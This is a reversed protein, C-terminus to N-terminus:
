AVSTSLPRGAQRWEVVGDTLLIAHRGAATLLRVADHSFLCYSGRCYAVVDTDAPLEDLRTSLEELPISIAGPIHGAAYEIAPRVDLVIVEGAHARRLLEERGIQELDGPGLYRRAAAEVDALHATAVDRLQGWLAVVDDGALSYRITTGARSTSVLGARKLTQLHASATTLNLGAAEALEAVGRQGQALLEILQLRTGNGLTKGVHALQEFLEGRTGERSV